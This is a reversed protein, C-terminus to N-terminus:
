THSEIPGSTGLTWMEERYCNFHGEKFCKKYSSLLHM